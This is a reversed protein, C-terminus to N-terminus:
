YRPNRRPPRADRSSSSTERPRSENVILKRGGFEKGNLESIAREAEEASPMEVFAFGRSQGTFKDGIIKVTTVEGYKEFIERVTDETASYSLNGIYINM